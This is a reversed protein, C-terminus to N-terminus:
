RLADAYEQFKREVHSKLCAPMFSFYRGETRQRYAGLTGDMRLDTLMDAVMENCLLAAEARLEHVRIGKRLPVRRMSVVDGTDLTPEVRHLTVAIADFDGWYIAWYASDLGRYREADGGHLNFIQPCVGIVEPSLRGTGYVVIVDPKDAKILGVYRNCDSVWQNPANWSIANVPSGYQFREIEHEDRAKDMDHEAWWPTPPREAECFVRHIPFSAAIHRVFQGHCPTDTTLIVLNVVASEETDM